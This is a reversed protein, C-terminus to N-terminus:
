KQATIPKTPQWAVAKQEAAAVVTQQLKGALGTRSKEVSKEGRRAAITWWFFAQSEDKEVGRGIAYRRGLRAAAPAYGQMASKLYLKFAETQDLPVGKGRAYLRALDFQAEAHGQDAALRYWYAAKTYDTAVGYGEIPMWGLDDENDGSSGNAIQMWRMASADDAPIGWGQAYMQALSYEAQANGQAAAAEYWHQAAQLDRLVGLGKAYLLGLDYQAEPQGKDAAAKWERFAVLYNGKEFAALGAAADAWLANSAILAVGIGLMANRFGRIHVINRRKPAICRRSADSLHWAQSDIRFRIFPVNVGTLQCSAGEAANTLYRSVKTCLKSTARFTM